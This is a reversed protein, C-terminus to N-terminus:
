KRSKRNKKSKRSKKNTNNKNNNKNNRKPVRAIWRSIQDQHRIPNGTGPNRIPHGSRTKTDFWRQLTEVKYIFEYGNETIVIIPEGDIFDHTTIMNQMKDEPIDKFGQSETPLVFEPIDPYDRLLEQAHAQAQAQAQAQINADQQQQLVIPICRPEISGFRCLLHLFIRDNIRVPDNNIGLVQIPTRGQNDPINVDAGRHCLVATEQYNYEACGTFVPTEGRANQLNINAGNNILIHVYEEKGEKVAYHLASGEAAMYNIDNGILQRITDEFEYGHQGDLNTHIILTILPTLGNEDRQNVDAGDDLLNQIDRVQQNLDEDTYEYFDKLVDFLTQPPEPAQPRSFLIGRGKQKRTKPM